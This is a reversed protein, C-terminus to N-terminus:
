VRHLGLIVIIKCVNQDFISFQLKNLRGGLIDRQLTDSVIFKLDKYVFGKNQYEARVVFEKPIGSTPM